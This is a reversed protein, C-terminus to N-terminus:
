NIVLYDCYLAIRSGWQVDTWLQVFGNGPIVNHVTYRAAGLFGESCSAFVRSSPTVVSWYLTSKVTGNFAGWYQKHSHMNNPSIYQAGIGTSNVQAEIAQSGKPDLSGRKEDSASASGSLLSIFVAVGVTLAKSGVAGGTRGLTERNM